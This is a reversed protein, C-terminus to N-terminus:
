QTKKFVSATHIYVHVHLQLQRWKYEDLLGYKKKARKLSVARAM